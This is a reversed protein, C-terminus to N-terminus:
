AERMLLLEQPVEHARREDIEHDEREDHEVEKELDVMADTKQEIAERVHSSCLIDTDVPVLQM